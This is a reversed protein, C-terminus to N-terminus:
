STCIGACSMWPRPSSRVPVWPSGDQNRVFAGPVVDITIRPPIVTGAPSRPPPPLISKSSGTIPWSLRVDGIDITFIRSAGLLMEYFETRDHGDDDVYSITFRQVHDVVEQVTTQGTIHTGNTSGTRAWWNGADDVSSEKHELADYFYREAVEPTAPPPPEGRPGTLCVWGSFLGVGSQSSVSRSLPNELMGNLGAYRGARRYIVGFHANALWISPEGRPTIRGTHDAQLPQRVLSFGTSVRPDRQSYVLASDDGTFGPVGFGEEVTAVPLPVPESAGDPICISFISPQGGSTRM